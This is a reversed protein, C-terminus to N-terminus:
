QQPAVAEMGFQCDVRDIGEASGGEKMEDYSIDVVLVELVNAMNYTNWGRETEAGTLRFARFVPQKKADLGYAYVQLVMERTVIGGTNSLRNVAQDAAGGLKMVVKVLKKHHIAHCILEKFAALDERRDGYLDKRHCHFQGDYLGWQNCGKECLHCGAENVPGPHAFVNGITGLFLALGIIKLKAKM